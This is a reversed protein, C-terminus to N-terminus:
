YIIEIETRPTMSYFKFNTEHYIQCDDAFVIENMRDMPFKKLNDVDPRKLYPFDDNAIREIFGKRKKETESPAFFWACNMIIPVGKPIMIFGEPLQDKIIRKAADMQKQQPNYWQGYKGRRTRAEAIPQGPLTIYLINM